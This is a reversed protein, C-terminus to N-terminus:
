ATVDHAEEFHTTEAGWTAWGAGRSARLCNASAMPRPPVCYEVLTYFRDPKRSHERLPGDIATTQNTLTVTPNGKIALLCQETRGRLWDGTGM